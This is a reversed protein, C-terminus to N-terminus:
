RQGLYVLLTRVHNGMLLAEPKGVEVTVLKPGRGHSRPSRISDAFDFLAQYNNPLLGVRVAAKSLDRLSAGPSGPHGAADLGYRLGSELARYYERVANTWEKSQYQRDGEQLEEAASDWGRRRVLEDCSRIVQSLVDPVVIAGGAETDESPTLPLLRGLEHPDRWVDYGRSAIEIAVNRGMTPRRTVLHLHELMKAAADVENFPRDIFREGDGHYELEPRGTEFAKAALSLIERRLGNTAYGASRGHESREYQWVLEIQGEFSIATVRRLWGYEEFGALVHDVVHDPVAEQEALRQIDPLSCRILGDALFEQRALEM